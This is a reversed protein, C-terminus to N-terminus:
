GCGGIVMGPLGDWLIALLSLGAGSATLFATLGGNDRLRPLAWAIVAGAALAAALTLGAIAWPLWAPPPPRACAVGAIGYILGLHVAWILPGASILLIERLFRRAAEPM